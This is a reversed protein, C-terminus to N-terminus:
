HQLKLETLARAPGTAAFAQQEERPSPRTGGESGEGHRPSEAPEEFLLRQFPRSPQREADM